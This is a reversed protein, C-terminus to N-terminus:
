ESQQRSELNGCQHAMAPAKVAIATAIEKKLHRDNESYHAEAIPTAKPM